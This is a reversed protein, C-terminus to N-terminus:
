VCVCVSMCVSLCVSLCVYVCLEKISHNCWEFVFDFGFFVPFRDFDLLFVLFLIVLFVSFIAALFKVEPPVSLVIQCRAALFGPSKHLPPSSSIAHLHPLNPSSLWTHWLPSCSGLRRGCVGM